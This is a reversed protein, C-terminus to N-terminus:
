LLDTLGFGIGLNLGGQAGLDIGHHGFLFVAGPRSCHKLV